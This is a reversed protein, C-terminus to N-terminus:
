PLALSDARPLEFVRFAGMLTGDIRLARPVTRREGDLGFGTRFTDTRVSVAYSGLECTPSLASATFAACPGSAARRTVTARTGETASGLVTGDPTVIVVIASAPITGHPAVLAIEGAGNWLLAMTTTSATRAIGGGPPPSPLRFETSVVVGSGDPGFGDIRAPRVGDRQSARVFSAATRAVLAAPDFTPTGPTGAPIAELRALVAEPVPGPVLSPEPATSGDSSCAVALPVLTVLALRHLADPM